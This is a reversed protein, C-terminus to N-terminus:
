IARSFITGRQEIQFGVANLTQNDDVSDAETTAQIKTTREAALESIASSLVFRVAASSNSATRTSNAASARWRTLLVTGGSVIMMEPDALLMEAEAMVAGSRETAVFRHMELHSMASAIRFPQDTVDRRRDVMASRRLALLERDFAPRYSALMLHHSILERTPTFGAQNAWRRTTSDQQPIGSATGCQDLGAYGTWHEPAQGLVVQTAGAQQSETFIKELLKSAVEDRENGSAAIGAVVAVSPDHASLMWHAYGVISGNSDPQEAILLNNNSFYPRGLVVVEIATLSVPAPNGLERRRASWLDAVAPADYNRFYRVSIVHIRGQTHELLLPLLRRPSFSAVCDRSQIRPAGLFDLKEAIGIFLATSLRSLGESAGTEM